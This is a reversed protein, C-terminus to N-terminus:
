DRKDFYFTFSDSLEKDNQLCCYIWSFVLEKSQSKVSDSLLKQKTSGGYEFESGKVSCVIILSKLIRKRTAKFYKINNEKAYKKCASIIGEIIGDLLSGHCVTDIYNAFSTVSPAWKFGAIAIQYENEDMNGEYKIQFRPEGILSKIIKNFVFYIGEPISYYSQNLYKTREDRIIVETQRNIIPILILEQNLYLYDINTYRFITEDIECTITVRTQPTNDDKYNNFKWQGETFLAQIKDNSIELRKTVPTVTRAYTLRDPSVTASDFTQLFPALNAKGDIEILFSSNTNISVTFLSNESKCLLICELILEKILRVAGKGGLEGFYMGPRKKINEVLAMSTIAGNAFLSNAPVSDTM